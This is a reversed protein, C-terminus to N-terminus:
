PSTVRYFRLPRNTAGTDLFRFQGPSSQTAYGLWSWNTFNTSARISYSAGSVGAFSFSFGANANRSYAATQLAPPPLITVTVAGPDSDHVGDNALFGFSTYPAGFADPPPAFLVRGLVDAVATGSSSIAEGRGTGNFQYLTGNAPLSSIRFGLADGSPDWGSLSLILDNNLGGIASLSTAYPPLNLSVPILALGHYDGSAISLVGSLGAPVNTAQTSGGWAVVTGDARLALSHRFGAAVAVVNSLGAPVSSQGYDNYGWAVVTGNTRLALNHWTETSIAVVNSLNAPPTQSEIIPESGWAVVKGDARLALGHSSGAAIAVVNTLNSPVSIGGSSNDGWGVVTGDSKLAIDFADGGAIAVVNSLGAPVYAPQIVNGLYTGWASVTGDQKLALSHVWGGAVAVVNSLGAPVNTQGYSPSRNVNNYDGRTAGWALVTGDSHIALSHGHGAAVGVIDNLGPAMAANGITPDGWAAIKMGTTFVRDTGRTVGFANSAVLRFHYAAGTTLGQIVASVRVVRVGNSVDAPSTSQGYNTDMGWEFWATTPQGRPTAMGNLTATTSSVPGAPQTAALPAQSYLRTTALM